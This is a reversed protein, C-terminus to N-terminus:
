TCRNGSRCRSAMSRPRWPRAALAILADSAFRLTAGTVTMELAATGEDNGVIRNALRFALAMWRDPPRCAWMGTASRGPWDQVTTLTGPSLVEIGPSSFPLECLLATTQSARGSVAANGLMSRLFPLNTEIGHIRTRALATACNTSPRRARPATRSSRPWCRTTGTAWKPAPRSGAMSACTRRAAGSRDAPRQSPRFGRAADEAYVRAQVAHGRPRYRFAALDPPEGAAVRLMWEVLDMGGVEETVGHEVQLRTNVELFCFEGSDADYIFEVTGASRYNCRADWDNPPPTCDSRADCRDLGPAPSEEVVKQNRRQMSCDREGLAIVNGRGDGFLQVEIHRANAVYKELFVGGDSFNGTALRQVSDFARALEEASACLQMGIGGGGATSKLMVPYGIREAARWRPTWTPCCAAARCCRCASQRRGAARARTSSASTACRRPRRASSPSARPRAPKRRVGANESLFGYGPHIAEAGSRRAVELLRDQQLYSQAAPAPGICCAEDALRVHLSQADAESYVAVSGIGLRKLTRLIRCAIAGRNAILVKNFM